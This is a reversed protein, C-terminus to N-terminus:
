LLAQVQEISLGEKLAEETTEHLEAIINNFKEEYRLVTKHNEKNYNLKSASELIATQNILDLKSGLYKKVKLITKTEPSYAAQEQETVPEKIKDGSSNIIGLKYAEFDKFNKNLSSLLFKNKMSENFMKNYDIGHLHIDSFPNLKCGKGYSNSGCYSCKKPDQPHFHVGKPAFRCGKGYSTSNCYLCRSVPKFASVKESVPIM